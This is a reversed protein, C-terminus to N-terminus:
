KRFVCETRRCRHHYKETNNRCTKQCSISNGPNKSLGPGIIVVDAWLAKKQLYEFASMSLSGGATEPLPEVMVETLKRSLIPYVSSPTCLIVAGAGSKMASVATMAAAGTLGRSGAIVLIKGVSYKNANVPDFRCFGHLM